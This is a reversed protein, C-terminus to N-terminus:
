LYTIYMKAIKILRKQEDKTKRDWHYVNRATAYIKKFKTYHTNILNYYLADWIEDWGYENGDGLKIGDPKGGTKYEGDNMKKIYASSSFYPRSMMFGGDAYMIMGYINPIMVWEYSDISVASIFWKYVEDPDVMTLLFFQGIVMLREIHHLYSYQYAKKICDDVPPIGTTADWFRKSLKNTHNLYNKGVITNKGIIAAKSRITFKDLHFEYLYRMSQKWGILQRIYGELSNLPVKSHNAHIADLIDKDILLGINLLPSLISHYGFKIKSNFADEYKGFKNLRNKIFNALWKKAGAHDIPFIFNDMIGWNDAFHKNVYKKAEAIYKSSNNQPSFVDKQGKPFSLRNEKDYSLKTIPTLIKLRNRQWRYFSSDHTFKKNKNKDYYEKLDAHTTIFEPTELMTAKKASSSLIKKTLNHDIPNYFFVEQNKLDSLYNDKFEYYKVDLGKQKLYNYYSKMSARHFALKLKHFKYKTFYTPEEILYIKLDKVILSNDKLSVGLKFFDFLQTPFILFIIM